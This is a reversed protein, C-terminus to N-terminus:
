YRTVLQRELIQNCLVVGSRYFVLVGDATM